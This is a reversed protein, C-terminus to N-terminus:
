ILKKYILFFINRYIMLFIIFFYTKTNNMNKTNKEYKKPKKYINEIFFIFM